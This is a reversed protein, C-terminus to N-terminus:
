RKSQLVLFILEKWLVTLSVQCLVRCQSICHSLIQHWTHEALLLSVLIFNGLTSFAVYPQTSGRTELNIVDFQM